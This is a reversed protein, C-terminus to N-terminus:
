STLITAVKGAIKHLINNCGNTNNTLTLNLLFANLKYVHKKFPAIIKSFLLHQGSLVYRHFRSATTTFNNDYYIRFYYKLPPHQETDSCYTCRINRNRSIPNKKDV